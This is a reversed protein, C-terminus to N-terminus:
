QVYDGTVGGLSSRRITTILIEIPIDETIDSLITIRLKGERLVPNELYPASSTGDKPIIAVTTSVEAWDFYDDYIYFSGAVTGAPIVSEMRYNTMWTDGFQAGHLKEYDADKHNLKWTSWTPMGLTSTYAPTVKSSPSSTYLCSDYTPDSTDEVYCCFQKHIPLPILSNGVFGSVSTYPLLKGKYVLEGTNWSGMPYAQNTYAWTQSSTRPYYVSSSNVYGSYPKHYSETCGATKDTPLWSNYYKDYTTGVSFSSKDSSNLGTASFMRALWATNSANKDEMETMLEQKVAPDLDSDYESKDAFSPGRLFQAVCLGEDTSRPTMGIGISKGNSGATFCEQGM